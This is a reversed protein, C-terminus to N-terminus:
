PATGKCAGCIPDTTGDCPQGRRALNSKAVAAIAAALELAQDPSLWSGSLGDYGVWVVDDHPRPGTATADVVRFGNIDFTQHELYGYEDKPM